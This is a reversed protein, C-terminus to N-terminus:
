MGYVGNTTRLNVDVSSDLQRGVQKASPRGCDIIPTGFAGGITETCCGENVFLKYIEFHSETFSYRLFAPCFTQVLKILKLSVKMFQLIKWFLTGMDDLEHLISELTLLM